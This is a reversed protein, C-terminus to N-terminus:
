RGGHSNAIWMMAKEVPFTVEHPPKAALPVLTLDDLERIARQKGNRGPHEIGMGTTKQRCFGPWANGDGGQEGQAPQEISLGQESRRGRSSSFDRLHFSLRM